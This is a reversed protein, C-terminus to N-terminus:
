EENFDRARSGMSIGKDEAATVGFHSLNYDTVKKDTEKLQGIPFVRVTSKKEDKMKRIEAALLHGATTDITECSVRLAGEHIHMSPVIAAVKLENISLGFDSPADGVVVVVDIGEELAKKFQWLINELVEKSYVFGNASEKDEFLVACEFVAPATVPKLKNDPM